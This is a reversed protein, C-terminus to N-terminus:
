NVLSSGRNFQSFMGSVESLRDKNKQVHEDFVKDLVRNTFIGRTLVDNTVETIFDLYEM